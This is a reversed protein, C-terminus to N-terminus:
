EGKKFIHELIYLTQKALQRCKFGRYWELLDWGAVAIDYDTKASKVNQVFRSFRIEAKTKEM